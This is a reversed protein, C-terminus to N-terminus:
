EFVKMCIKDDIEIAIYSWYTCPLVEFDVHSEVFKLGEVRM